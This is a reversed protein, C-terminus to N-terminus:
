IELFFRTKCELLYPIICISERVLNPLTEQAFASLQMVPINETLYLTNMLLVKAVHMHSPFFVSLLKTLINWMLLATYLLLM